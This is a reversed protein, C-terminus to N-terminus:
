LHSITRKFEAEPLGRKASNEVLTTLASAIHDLDAAGNPLSAFSVDKPVLFDKNEIMGNLNPM